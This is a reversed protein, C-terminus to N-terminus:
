DDSLEKKLRERARQLRTQATSEKLGCLAAVEKVPYGEYYYLYLPVRYKKPLGMVAQFLGTEQPSEMGLSQAYEELPVHRHFWPSCVLRKSENVAVRLIWRRAHEPSEFSPSARYLRLFVNQVIDQSDAPNKCAHFAVRYVAGTYERVYGTFEQEEM